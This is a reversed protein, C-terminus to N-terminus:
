ETCQNEPNWPIETPLDWVRDVVIGRSDVLVALYSVVGDEAIIWSLVRARRLMGDRTPQGLAARLEAETTRCLEVARAIARRDGASGPAPSSPAAHACGALCLLLALTGRRAQGHM